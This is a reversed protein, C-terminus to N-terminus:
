ASSSATAAKMTIRGTPPVESFIRGTGINNLGRKEASPKVRYCRQRRIAETLHWRQIPPRDDSVLAQTTQGNQLWCATKVIAQQSPRNGFSPVGAQRPLTRQHEEDRGPVIRRDSRGAKGIQTFCATEHSPTNRNM